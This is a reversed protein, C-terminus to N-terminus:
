TYLDCVASTETISDDETNIISTDYKNCSICQTYPNHVASTETTSSDKINM